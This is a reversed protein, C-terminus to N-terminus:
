NKAETEVFEVEAKGVRSACDEVARLVDRYAPDTLVEEALEPSFAEDLGDWDTLIHKVYLAGIKTSIEDIPIDAGTSQRRKAMDRLLKEQASKFEPIETSRVRFRVGKWPLYPVWDGEAEKKLDVALSKLKVTM